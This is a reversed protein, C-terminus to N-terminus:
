AHPAVGVQGPTGVMGSGGPSQPQAQASRQALIGGALHVQQVAAASFSQRSLEMLVGVGMNERGAQQMALEHNHTYAQDLVKEITADVKDAMPKGKDTDDEPSGSDPLPVRVDVPEDPM